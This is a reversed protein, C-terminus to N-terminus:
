EGFVWSAAFHIRCQGARFVERSRPQVQSFDYQSDNMGPPIGDVGPGLSFKPKMAQAQCSNQKLCVLKPNYSKSGESSICTCLTHGFNVVRSTAIATTM